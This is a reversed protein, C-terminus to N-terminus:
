ATQAEPTGVEEGDGYSGQPASAAIEPVHRGTTPVSRLETIQVLPTVTRTSEEGTEADRYHIEQPEFPSDQALRPAEATARIEEQSLWVEGDPDVAVGKEDGRSNITVVSLYGGSENRFKARLVEGM